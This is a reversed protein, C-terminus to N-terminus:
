TICDSPNNKHPLLLSYLSLSCDNAVVDEKAEFIKCGETVHHGELQRKRLSFYKKAHMLLGMGIFDTVKRQIQKADRAEAKFHFLVFNSVANLHLMSQPAHLGIACYCDKFGLGRQIGLIFNTRSRFSHEASM